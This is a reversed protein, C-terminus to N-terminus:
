QVAELELDTVLRSVGKWKGMEDMEHILIHRSGIIVAAYARFREGVSDARM